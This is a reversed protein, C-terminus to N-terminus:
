SRVQRGVEVMGIKWPIRSLASDNEIWPSGICFFDIGRHLPKTVEIVNAV